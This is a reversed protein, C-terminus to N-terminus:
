LFNAKSSKETVIGTLRSIVRSEDLLISAVSPRISLFSENSVKGLVLGVLEDVVLFSVVLIM